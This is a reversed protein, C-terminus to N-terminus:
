AAGGPVERTWGERRLEVLVTDVGIIGARLLSAKDDADPDPGEEIVVWSSLDNVGVSWGRNLPGYRLYVGDRGSKIVGTVSSGDTFRVEVVAGERWHENLRVFRRQAPEPDLPIPDFTSRDPNQVGALEMVAQVKDEPILACTAGPQVNPLRTIVYDVHNDIM